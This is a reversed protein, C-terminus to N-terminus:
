AGGAIARGALVGRSALRTPLAAIYSDLDERRVRVGAGVHVSALEGSRVLREVTSLSVALVHAAESLRLLVPVPMLDGDPGARGCACSAPAQRDTLADRLVETLVLLEPPPPYGARRQRALHEALAVAVHALVDRGRGHASM